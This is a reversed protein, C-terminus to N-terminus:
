TVRPRNRQHSTEQRSGWFSHTGTAQHTAAAAAEAADGGVHVLARQTPMGTAATGQFLPQLMGRLQRYFAHFQFTDGTFRSVEVRWQSPSQSTSQSTASAHEARHPLAGLDAAPTVFISARMIGPGMGDACHTAGTLLCYRASQSPSLSPKTTQLEHTVPMADLAGRIASLVAEAGGPCDLTWGLRKVKIRGRAMLPPASPASPAGPADDVVLSAGAPARQEGAVKRPLQSQPSYIVAVPRTPRCLGDYTAAPSNPHALLSRGISEATAGHV